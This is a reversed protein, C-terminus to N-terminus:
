RRIEAKLENIFAQQIKSFWTDLDKDSLTAEKNEITFRLAVSKKNKGVHDPNAYIDFVSIDTLWSGGNKIAVAHIEDYTIEDSIIVALDREVSPYKNLDETVTVSQSTLSLISAVDFDAIFVPQGIGFEKTWKTDVRGFWALHYPAVRLEFGYNYGNKNDFAIRNVNKIGLRTLLGNVASKMTFFNVEKGLGSQWHDLHGQGTLALMLHEKERPEGNENAYSNGFEFLRLDDQRRNHNRRITELIPIVMEPRMLNLSENSTNHITVWTNRDILDIDKYYQPQTLSLNMMEFFGRSALFQGILRRMRHPAFRSEIAVSTQMRTPLPVNVFGYVRLIEEIVDIERIVDAKNTPISIIAKHDGREVVSMNLADLIRYIKSASFQIGTKANLTAFNLTIKAPEIPKPYIDYVGSAVKAGAHSSLLDAARSLAKMTINPDSGKEFRRAAETRLNHRMSTRRVYGANFHAAELFITTTSDTVGSHLGGYV